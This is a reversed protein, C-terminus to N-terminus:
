WRVKGGKNLGGVWGGSNGTVAREAAKVNFSAAASPRWNRQTQANVRETAAAGRRAVGGEVQPVHVRVTGAVVIGLANSGCRERSRNRGRELWGIGCGGSLMLQVCGEAFGAVTHGVWMMDAMNREVTRSGLVV